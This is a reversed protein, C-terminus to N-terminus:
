NIFEYSKIKNVHIKGQLPESQYSIIKRGWPVHQLMGEIEEKDTIYQDGNAVEEPFIGVKKLISGDELYLNLLM